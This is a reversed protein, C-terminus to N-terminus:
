ETPSAGVPSTDKAPADGENELIALTEAEDAADNLFVMNLPRFYVCRMYAPLPMRIVELTETM